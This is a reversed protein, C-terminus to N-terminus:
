GGQPEGPARLTLYYGISRFPVTDHFGVYVRLPEETSRIVADAVCLDARGTTALCAAVDQSERTIPSRVRFAALESEARPSVLLAPTPVSQEREDVLNWDMLTLCLFYEDANKMQAIAAGAQDLVELSCQILVSEREDKPLGALFAVDKSRSFLPPEDFEQLGSLWAVDFAGEKKFVERLIDKAARTM